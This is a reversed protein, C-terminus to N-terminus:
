MLSNALKKAPMSSALSICLDGKLSRGLPPATLASTLQCPMLMLSRIGAAFLVHAFFDLRYRHALAPFSKAIAAQVAEERTSM